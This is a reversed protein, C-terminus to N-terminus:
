RAEEAEIWDWRRGCLNRARSPSVAVLRSQEETPNLVLPGFVGDSGASGPHLDPGGVAVAFVHRGRGLRVAGFDLYNGPANLQQRLSNQRQSDVTLTASPRLSGGLWVEYSGATPVRVPLSFEGASGLPELYTTGLRTRVLGGSHTAGGLALALPQTATSAILHGGPGAEAALRLVDAMVLDDLRAAALM